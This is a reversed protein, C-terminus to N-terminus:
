KCHDRFYTRIHGVMERSHTRKNTEMDVYVADPLMEVIKKLNDPEHLKDKSAGIILAPYPIDRLVPWVAYQALALVAPKLKAPDAADLARCYKEYQEHDSELDLRFKRLYWKVSPKILTYLPPYFSGVIIRWILPVRFEANPSVLVLCRPRRKLHRTADLIVTAGLSSGFFIYSADELMLADVANVIDHGIADVSFSVKTTIRSSIKERTELYYVSFDRTMEQLVEGWGEILSVWGAIFLIRPRVPNGPHEFKILRLEVHPATPLMEIVVNTGSSALERLSLIESNEPETM